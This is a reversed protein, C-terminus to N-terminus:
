RVPAARPWARVRCRGAAARREGGAVAETYGGRSYRDFNHTYQRGGGAPTGRAPLPAPWGEGGPPADVQLLRAGERIGPKRALPAGPYGAMPRNPNM